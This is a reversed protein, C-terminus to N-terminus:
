ATAGELPQLSFASPLLSSSRTRVEAKMSGGEAKGNLIDARRQAPAEDRYVRVAGNDGRHYEAKPGANRVVRWNGAIRLPAWGDGSPPLIFASPPLGSTIATTM